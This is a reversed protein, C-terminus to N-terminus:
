YLKGPGTNQKPAGAMEMVLAQTKKTTGEPENVTNHWLYRFRNAASADDNKDPPPGHKQEFYKRYRDFEVKYIATDALEAALGAWKMADSPSFDPKGAVHRFIRVANIVKEEFVM